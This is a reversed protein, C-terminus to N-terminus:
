YIYLTKYIVHFIYVDTSLTQSVFVNMSPFMMYYVYIPIYLYVCVWRMQSETWTDGVLLNSTEKIPKYCAISLMGEPMVMLKM